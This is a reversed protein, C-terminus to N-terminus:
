RVGTYIVPCQNVVHDHYAAACAADAGAQAYADVGHNRVLLHYTGAFNLCVTNQSGYGGCVNVVGTGFDSDCQGQTKKQMGYCADHANCVERFSFGQAPEDRTHYELPALANGLLNNFWDPTGQAGCGNPMWDSNILPSKPYVGTSVASSPCVQMVKAKTEKCFADDAKRKAQKEKEEEPVDSVTMDVLAREYAQIFSDVARGCGHCILRRGYVTVVEPQKPGESEAAFAVPNFTALTLGCFFALRRAVTVINHRSFM